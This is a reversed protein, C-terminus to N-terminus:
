SNVPLHPRQSLTGTLLLLIYFDSSFILLINSTSESFPLSIIHYERKFTSSLKAQERGRM